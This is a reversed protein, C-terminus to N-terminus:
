ISGPARCGWFIVRQFDLQSTIQMESICYNWCRPAAANIHYQPYFCLKSTNYTSHCIQSRRDTNPFTTSSCVCIEKHRYIITEVLQLWEFFLVSQMWAKRNSGFDLTRVATDILAVHHSKKNLLECLFNTQKANTAVLLIPLVFKKRRWTAWSSGQSKTILLLITTCNSSMRTTFLKYIIGM